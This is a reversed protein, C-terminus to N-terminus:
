ESWKLLGRQRGCFQKDHAVRLFCAPTGKHEELQSCSHLQKLGAKPLICETVQVESCHWLQRSVLLAVAERLGPTQQSCVLQLLTVLLLYFM